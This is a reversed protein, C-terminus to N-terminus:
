ASLRLTPRRADFMPALKQYIRKTDMVDCACYTEIATTNGEAFLRAIDNGGLGRIAEDREPLGFFAAWESIGEDEAYQEWNLLVARCDFHPYTAYKRFWDKIIEPRVTPNINHLMSRIVIFRLDFTGNWTVVRGGAMGAEHWFGRLLEAEDEERKAFSTTADTGDETTMGVCLVRGLRPNLSCEKVRGERWKAEDATRWTAIADANKYNSPPQRMERPYEADLAARLPLTEIDIVFPHDIVSTM